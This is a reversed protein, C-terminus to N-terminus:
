VLDSVTFFLTKLKQFCHGESFSIYLIVKSIITNFWLFCQWFCGFALKEFGFLIDYNDFHHRVDFHCRYDCSSCFSNRFATIQWIWKLRIFVQVFNNGNFSTLVAGVCNNWARTLFFNSFQSNYSIFQCVQLKLLVQRCFESLLSAWQMGAM